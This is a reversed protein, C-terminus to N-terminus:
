CGRAGHQQTHTHVRARTNTQSWASAPPASIPPHTPGAPLPRLASEKTTVLRHAVAQAALERSGNDSVDDGAEAQKGRTVLVYM